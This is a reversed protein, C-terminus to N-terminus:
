GKSIKNYTDSWKKEEAEFKAKDAPVKSAAKKDGYILILQDVLRKYNQLEMGKLGDAKGYGEASKLLFPLAKDVEADYDKQLAARKDTLEAPPPPLKGTKPNPKAAANVKRIEDTVERIKDNIRVGKNIFHNGLYYYAKGSKTNRDGAKSLFDVMKGELEEYNGPREGDEKNLEEFLILGYTELLATNDPEKQLKAELRKRMEVKDEMSMIFDEESYTFFEAKPYLSAGAAKIKEFNAIDGKRFYYGTLFQYMFENDEGGIKKDTLRTFYRAAEDENKANQYSAGALLNATTDLTMSALKNDIIFDSWKVTHKFSEAAAAWDKKNYLKIGNNFYNSYFTIPTNNYPTQNILEKKPDMELYKEYAGIAEQELQGHQSALSSDNLLYGYVTAKLIYAEPKAAFKPKAMGQDLKERAAKVQGLVLLNRVDEYTQAMAGTTGVASIFLVSLLRKM